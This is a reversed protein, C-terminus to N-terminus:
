VHITIEFFLDEGQKGSLTRGAAEVTKGFKARRTFIKCVEARCCAIEFIEFQSFFLVQFYYSVNKCKIRFVKKWDRWLRIFM